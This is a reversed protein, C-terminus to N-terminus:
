LVLSFSFLIYQKILNKVTLSLVPQTSSYQLFFNLKNRWCKFESKNGYLVKKFRYLYMFKKTRHINNHIAYKLLIIQFSFPQGWNTAVIVQNAKGVCGLSKECSKRIIDVITAHFIIRWASVSIEDSFSNM